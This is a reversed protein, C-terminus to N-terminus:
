LYIGIHFTAKANYDEVKSIAINPYRSSDNRRVLNTRNYEKTTAQYPQFGIVTRGLLFYCAEDLYDLLQISYNM